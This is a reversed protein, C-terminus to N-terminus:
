AFNDTTVNGPPAAQPMTTVVPTPNPSVVIPPATQNDGHCGALAFAALVTGAVAARRSFISFPQM